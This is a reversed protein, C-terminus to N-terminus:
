VVIHMESNRTYKIGIITMYECLMDAQRKADVRNIGRLVLDRKNIIKDNVPAVYINDVRKDMIMLIITLIKHTTKGGGRAGTMIFNRNFRTKKFVIAVNKVSFGDNVLTDRMTM